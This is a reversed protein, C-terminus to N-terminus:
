GGGGWPILTSYVSAGSAVWGSLLYFSYVSLAALTAGTILWNKLKGFSHGRVPYDTYFRVGSERERYPAIGILFVSGFM